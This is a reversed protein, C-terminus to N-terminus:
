KEFLQGEEPNLTFYAELFRTEDDKQILFLGKQPLLGSLDHFDNHNGSKM